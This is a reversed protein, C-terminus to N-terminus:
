GAILGRYEELLAKMAPDKEALMEYVALKQLDKAKAEMSQQLVQLRNEKERRANYADVSVPAIIERGCKVMELDTEHVSVVVALAFGHHGTRVAVLDGDMACDDYLAYSYTRDTNNGDLFKIEARKYGNLMTTEEQKNLGCIRLERPDFWFAGYSSRENTINEFRVAIKGKGTNFHNERITVGSKGSFRGNYSNSGPIIEVKVGIEM